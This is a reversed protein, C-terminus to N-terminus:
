ARSPRAALPPYLRDRVLRIFEAEFQEPRSPVPPMPLDRELLHELEEVHRWTYVGNYQSVSRSAMPNVITPVGAVLAEVIRTLAGAGRAQHVVLCGAQVMLGDLQAPTVRGLIQVDRGDAFAKLRDTGHGAVILPRRKRKPLQVYRRLFEQMGELTPPNEATGFLFHFAGPSSRRRRLDHLVPLLVKPPYYPLLFVKCGTNKLLWYEEWSITFVADCKALQAIEEGIRWPGDRGFSNHRDDDVLSELNQPLALIPIKNRRAAGFIGMGGGDRSEWLLVDNGDRSARLHRRFAWYGAGQRGFRRRLPLKIGVAARLIWWGALKSFVSLDATERLESGEIAAGRLLDRIQATRHGGGNRDRSEDFISYHFVM